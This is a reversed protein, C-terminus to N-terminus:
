SQWGELTAPLLLFPAAGLLSIEQLVFARYIGILQGGGAM